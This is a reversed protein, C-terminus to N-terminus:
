MKNLGEIMISRREDTRFISSGIYKLWDLVEKAPHHYKNNEGVGILAIKPSFEEVIRQNTGTRSGHHSVKLIDIKGIEEKLLELTEKNADGTWLIKRNDINALIIISNDNDDSSKIEPSIIKLINNGIRIRDGKRMELIKIGKEKILNLLKNFNKDESEFGNYVFVSPQYREIVQFFGNYHDMDSHSVVLVDIKRDFFSMSNGLENMIKKDPGADILIKGSDSFDILCADGQGVDLFNLSNFSKNSFIQKWIFINFIVLSFLILFIKKIKEDM